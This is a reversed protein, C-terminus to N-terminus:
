QVLGLEKKIFSLGRDFATQWGGTNFNHNEGSYTYYTVPIEKEKLTDYLIDSWAQPVAEDATGQHLQLPAKIWDFYNILSYLESDYEAEFQAVVKRLAKGHDNADDTYYLISYPFPKSVPAWLITPYTAGTIELISLAIQGGNSHGWIGVSETRALPLNQKELAENLTKISELLDLITTYTQFREEMADSSPKDSSGYGLLDPSLTIFGQSAFEEGVRRTGEGTTYITQDVYGRILVMVPLNSINKPVNMLGSVRKGGTTFFFRYSTFRDDDKLIKDITIKGEQSKRTKLSKYSYKKLPKETPSPNGLKGLPSIVQTPNRFVSLLIAAALIGLALLLLHRFSM